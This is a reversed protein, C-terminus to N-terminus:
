KLQFGTGEFMNYMMEALDYHEDGVDGDGAGGM